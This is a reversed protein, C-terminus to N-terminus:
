SMERSGHISSLLNALLQMTKLALTGIVAIEVLLGCQVTLVGRFETLGVVVERMTSSFRHSSRLWHRGFERYLHHVPECHCRLNDHLGGLLLYPPLLLPKISQMRLLLSAYHFQGSIINFRWHYLSLM